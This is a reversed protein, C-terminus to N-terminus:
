FPKQTVKWIFQPCIRRLKSKPPIWVLCFKINFLFYRLNLIFVKYKELLYVGCSFVFFLVFYHIQFAIISLCYEAKTHFLKFIVVVIRVIFLFASCVWFLMKIIYIYIHISCYINCILSIFEYILCDRLSLHIMFLILLCSISVVPVM